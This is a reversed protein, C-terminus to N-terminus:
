NALRAQLKNILSKLQDALVSDTIEGTAKDFNQGFSPVSLEGIVEAGFHPLSKVAQSLVNAGGGKGPSTALALVPKDKFVKTDIRSAWDFLNKYAATYSGNHEAFSIILADADAVKKFFAQALEPQGLAKEKDESFLPLEYDNLDLIEVRASSILNAAYTALQKNISQSSTSAGFAIIHSAM